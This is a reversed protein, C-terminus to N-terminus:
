QGRRTPPGVFGGVNVQHSAALERNSREVSAVAALHFCGDVGDVAIRLLKANTVSGRAFDAAPHCPALRGTIPPM